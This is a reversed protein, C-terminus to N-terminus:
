ARVMELYMSRRQSSMTMIAAESWGYASALEHVEHLFRIAAHRLESWLFRGIDLDVREVAACEPCKATCLIEAGQHLQEFRELASAESEPGGIDWGEEAGEADTVSLCRALLLRRASRPDPQNIAAALDQSNAPRMRYTRPGITWTLPGDPVLEKLRDVLSAIPLAFELRTRCSPCPLSGAITPGFSLQRLRLLQLNREPIGLTALRELPIQPCAVALMTLARNSESQPAGREWAEVLLEGTLARM